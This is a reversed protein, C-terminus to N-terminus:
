TGPRLGLLAHLRNVVAVRAWAVLAVCTSWRWRWRSSLSASIRICWTWSCCDAVYWGAPWSSTSCGCRTSCSSSCCASPGCLGGGCGVCSLSASYRFRLGMHNPWTRALGLGLCSGLFALTVATLVIWCPSRFRVRAGGLICFCDSLVLVFLVAAGVLAGLATVSSSSSLPLVGSCWRVHRGHLPVHRGHLPLVGRGLSGRLSWRLCSSHAPSTTLSAGDLGSPSM